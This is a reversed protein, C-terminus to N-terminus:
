DFRSWTEIESKIALTYQEESLLEPTSVESLAIAVRFPWLLWKIFTEKKSISLEKLLWIKVRSKLYGIRNINNNSKM